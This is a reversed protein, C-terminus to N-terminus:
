FTHPRAWFAITMAGGLPVASLEVWDNAGDFTVGTGALCSAGSMLTAHMGGVQDSL